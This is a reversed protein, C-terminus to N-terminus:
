ELGCLAMAGFLYAHTIIGGTRTAVALGMAIGAGITAPWTPVTTRAMAMIALTSWSIAALFPVDIPAFSLNGYLYGTSLAIAIAAPGVWRGFSLRAIPYLAAIGSLGIVFTLGHRITLPHALGLSQVAAILMQAWPGYYWLPAEVTEFHSRDT